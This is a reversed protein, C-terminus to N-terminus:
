HNLRAAHLPCLDFRHPLRGPMSRYPVFGIARYFALAPANDAGISADIHALGAAQAAVLSRAFLRRGLGSRGADPRIHTGIIGWGPMVGYENGEAALSLSQFGLVVDGRVALTCCIRGPQDLYRARILAETVPDRRLGAAFIANQVVAMGPADTDTAERLHIESLSM